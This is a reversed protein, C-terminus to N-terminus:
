WRLERELDIRQSKVVDRQAYGERLGDSTELDQLLLTPCDNICKAIPHDIHNGSIACALSGCQFDFSESNEAHNESLGFIIM